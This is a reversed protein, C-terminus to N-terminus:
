KSGIQRKLYKIAGLMRTATPLKPRIFFNCIIRRWVAHHINRQFLQDYKQSPVLRYQTKKLRKVWQCKKQDYLLGSFDIKKTLVDLQVIFSLRNWWFWDSVIRQSSKNGENFYGFVDLNQFLCNGLGYFIYKGKYVEFPQVCHAHHGIILDAGLDIIAHAKLIDKPNPLYVEEEGWHLQVIIYDAKNSKAIHIDQSIKELNNAVVGFSSEKAFIPHTSPCVYGLLAIHQGGIDLFVPNNYNDASNGAGFFKIGSHKLAELTDIFGQEGFDMIHNNALCVAIPNKKFTNKFFLNSSKLNIKGPAAKTANTIPAELNCIYESQFTIRTQIPRTLWVDGLFTLVSMFEETEKYFIWGM